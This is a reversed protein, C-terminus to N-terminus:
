NVKILCYRHYRAVRSGTKNEVATNKRRLYFNFPLIFRASPAQSEAKSTLSLIAREEASFNCHLVM